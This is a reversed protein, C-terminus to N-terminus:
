VVFRWRSPRVLLLAVAVGVALKTATTVAFYALTVTLAWWFEPNAALRQYNALGVFTRGGSAYTSFDTLSIWIEWAIPYALVGLVLLLAPAMLLYAVAIERRRTPSM